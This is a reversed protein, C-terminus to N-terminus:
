QVAESGIGGLPECCCGPEKRSKELREREENRVPADWGRPQVCSSDRRDCQVDAEEDGRKAM